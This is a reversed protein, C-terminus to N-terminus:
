EVLEETIRLFFENQGRLQRFGRAPDNFEIQTDATLSVISTIETRGTAGKGQFQQVTQVGRIGLVRIEADQPVDEIMSDLLRQRDQFDPALVSDLQGDAWAAMVDEAAARAAQADIVKPTEVPVTGEPTAEPTAIARFGRIDQASATAALLGGLIIFPILRLM